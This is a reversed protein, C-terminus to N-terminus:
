RCDDCCGCATGRPEYDIIGGRRDLEVQCCELLESKVQKRARQVRSKMGSHSLGLQEAAALQTMGNLETLTIAERQTVPLRNIIPAVCGAMEQLVDDDARDDDPSDELADANVIPGERHRRPARYYDTIINRTIQYVWAHLRDDHELTDIKQHLRLFVEQVIDDVDAPNEVRRAVFGWLRSHFEDWLTETTHM